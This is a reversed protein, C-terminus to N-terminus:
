KAVESPLNFFQGGVDSGDVKFDDTGSNLHAVRTLTRKKNFATSV